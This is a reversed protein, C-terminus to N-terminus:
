PSAVGQYVRSSALVRLVLIATTSLRMLPGTSLSIRVSRISRRAWIPSSWAGKKTTPSTPGWSPRRGTSCTASSRLQNCSSAPLCRASPSSRRVPRATHAESRSCSLRRASATSSCDWAAWLRSVLQAWSSPETIWSNLSSTSRPVAAWPATDVEQSARALEPAGSLVRAWPCVRLFPKKPSLRLRRWCARSVSECSHRRARFSRRSAVMRSPM